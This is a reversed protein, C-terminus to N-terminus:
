LAVSVLSAVKASGVKKYTVHVPKNHYKAKGLSKCPIGNGSQGRQVGCITDKTLKYSTKHTGTLTVHGVKSSSNYTFSALNGTGTAASAVAALAMALVALVVLGASIRTKM